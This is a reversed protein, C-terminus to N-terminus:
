TVRQRVEHSRGDGSVGNMPDGEGWDREHGTVVEVM